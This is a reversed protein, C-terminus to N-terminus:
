VGKMEALCNPEDFTITDDTALHYIGKELMESSSSRLLRMAANSIGSGFSVRAICLHRLDAAPLGKSVMLNITLNLKRVFILITMADTLELPYEFDARTDSRANARKM